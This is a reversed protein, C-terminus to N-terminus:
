ARPKSREHAVGRVVTHVSKVPLGVMATFVASLENELRECVEPISVDPYVQIKTVVSLGEADGTAEADVERIGSVQRAARRVIAEIASMSIRVDGLATNVVIPTPEEDSRLVASVLYLVILLMVAAVAATVLKHESVTGFFDMAFGNPFGPGAVSALVVASLMVISAAALILVVRDLTKLEAV